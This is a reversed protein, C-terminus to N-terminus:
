GQTKEVIKDLLATLKQGSIKAEVPVFWWNDQAFKACKVADKETMLLPKSGEFEQFLDMSFKQHDQFAKAQIIHINLAQLMDFFRQPHGIGAIAAVQNFESLLRKEQTVLNVAYEPVLQMVAHTYQNEGGNGIVFDVEDLRSALERLPGAPLMFGNGLGRKADMVVIEMDRQLKYHQLGDDSIILDCDFHQLLLEIAQQRNPSICVPVGTRKAILVPEDGGLIPDTKGDVLLPYTTSQSGYGRSIVGCKIGKQQLQQVLWITVPTKGNGGVSLNGVVIVPVPAKYSKLIGSQFLFRRLKSIIFFILSFPLLLYSIFSHSYWFKM